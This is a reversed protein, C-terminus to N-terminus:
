MQQGRPLKLCGPLRYTPERWSYEVWIGIKSNHKSIITAKHYDYVNRTKHIPRHLNKQDSVRPFTTTYTVVESSVRCEKESEQKRKLKLPPKAPKETGGSLLHLFSDLVPLYLTQVLYSLHVAMNTERTCKRVQQTYTECNM